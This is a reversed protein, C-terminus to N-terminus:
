RSRSLRPMWGRVLGYSTNRAAIVLEERVFALDQLLTSITARADGEHEALAADIPDIVPRPSTEVELAPQEIGVDLRLRGDAATAM